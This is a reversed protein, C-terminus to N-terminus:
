VGADLQACRQFIKRGEAMVSLEGVGNATKRGAERDLAGVRLKQRVKRCCQINVEARLFARQDNGALTNREIRSIMGKNPHLIGAGKLFTRHLSTRAAVCFHHDKGPQLFAVDDALVRRARSFRSLTWSGPSAECLRRM